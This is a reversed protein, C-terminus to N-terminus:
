NKNESERKSGEQVSRITGVDNSPKQDKKTENIQKELEQLQKQEKLLRKASKKRQRKIVQRCAWALLGKGKFLRDFAAARVIANIDSNTDCANEIANKILKPHAYIRSTAFGDPTMVFDIFKRNGLEDLHTGPMGEYFGGANQRSKIVKRKRLPKLGADQKKKPGKFKPISM